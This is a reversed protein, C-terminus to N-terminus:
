RRHSRGRMVAEFFSRLHIIGIPCTPIGRDGMGGYVTHLMRYVAIKKPKM